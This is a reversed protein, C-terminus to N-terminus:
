KQTSDSCVAHVRFELYVYKTYPFTLAILYRSSTAPKSADDLSQKNVASFTSTDDLMNIMPASNCRKLNSSVGSMPLPPDVDVEMHAAM